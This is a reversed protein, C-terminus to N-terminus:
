GTLGTLGTLGTPSTLDALGTLRTPGTLFSEGAGYSRVIVGGGEAGAGADADAPRVSHARGLGSVHARGDAAVEVLTNEDVAVGHPLRYRTVAAILRPLTGM